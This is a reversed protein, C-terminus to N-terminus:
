VLNPFNLISKDRNKKYAYKDRALAAEIPSKYSGLYVNSYKAIFKPKTKRKRNTYNRNRQTVGYYGFKKMSKSGLLHKYSRNSANEKPTVPRLNCSRNNLKNRDIHDRWPKEKSVKCVEHHLYVWSNNNEREGSLVPRGVYGNPMLFWKYQSFYEGDYDDDVLTFKGTGHKGHLPIKIYGMQEM